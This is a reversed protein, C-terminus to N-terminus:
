YLLLVPLLFGLTNLLFFAGFFCQFVRLLHPWQLFITSSSVSTNLFTLAAFASFCTTSSAVAYTYSFSFRLPQQPLLFFPFHLTPRSFLKSLLSPATTRQQLLSFRFSRILGHFNSRAIRKTHLLRRSRYPAAAEFVLPRTGRCCCWHSCSTREHEGDRLIQKAAGFRSKLPEVHQLNL